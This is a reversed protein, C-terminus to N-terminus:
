VGPLANQGEQRHRRAPVLGNDGIRIPLQELMFWTLLQGCPCLLVEDAVDRVETRMALEAASPTYRIDDVVRMRNVHEGCMPCIYCIVTPM